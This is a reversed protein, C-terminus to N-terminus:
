ARLDLRAMTSRWTVLIELKMLANMGQADDNSVGVDDTYRVTESEEKGNKQSNWM